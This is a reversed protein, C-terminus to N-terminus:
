AQMDTVRLSTPGAASAVVYLPFGQDACNFDAGADVTQGDGYGLGGTLTAASRTVAVTGSSNALTFANGATGPTDYTINVVAPTLPNVTYTAPTISGSASANLVAALELATAEKTAGIHVNTATSAGTVFTFTVGNVSITETNLPNTVFTLSGRPFPNAGSGLIEITAGGSAYRLVSFTVPYAAPDNKFAPAKRIDIPTATVAITRTPQAIM